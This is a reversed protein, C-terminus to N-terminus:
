TSRNKRTSHKMETLQNTSPNLHVLNGCSMDFNKVLKSCMCTVTDYIYLQMVIRSVAALLLSASRLMCIYTYIYIHSLALLHVHLPNHVETSFVTKIQFTTYTSSHIFIYYVYNWCGPQPQNWSVTMMCQFFHQYIVALFPRGHVSHNKDKAQLCMSYCDSIQVRFVDNLVSLIVDVSMLTTNKILQDRINARWIHQLRLTFVKFLQFIVADSWFWRFCRTHVLGYMQVLCCNKKLLLKACLRFFIERITQYQQLM